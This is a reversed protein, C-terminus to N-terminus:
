ELTQYRTVEYLIGNQISKVLDVQFEISDFYPYFKLVNFCWLFLTRLSGCTEPRSLVYAVDLCELIKGGHKKENFGSYHTKLKNKPHPITEVDRQSDPLTIGLIANMASAHAFYYAELMNVLFHVSARDKRDKLINDLAQRYRDFTQPATNKRDHELDDILIVYSCSDRLLYDRAPLGIDTEDKNPIIQGMGVM